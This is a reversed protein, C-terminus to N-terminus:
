SFADIMAMFKVSDFRRAPFYDGHYSIIRRLLFIIDHSLGFGQVATFCPALHFRGAYPSIRRVQDLQTSFDLVQGAGVPDDSITNIRRQTALQEQAQLLRRTQQQLINTTTQFLVNQTVRTVPM